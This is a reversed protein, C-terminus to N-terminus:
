ASQVRKRREGRNRREGDANEPMAMAAVGGAVQVWAAADAGGTAILMTLAHAIVGLGAWTSPEKLRKSVM